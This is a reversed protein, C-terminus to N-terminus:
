RSRASSRPIIAARLECRLWSAIANRQIVGIHGAFPKRITFITLVPKV